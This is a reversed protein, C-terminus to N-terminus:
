LVYHLTSLGFFRGSKPQNSNAGATASATPTLTAVVGEAVTKAEAVAAAMVAAKVATEAVIAAAKPQNNYAGAAAETEAMMDVVMAEGNTAAEALAPMPAATALLPLSNFTGCLTAPSKEKDGNLIKRNRDGLSRQKPLIRKRARAL